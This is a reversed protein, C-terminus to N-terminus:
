SRGRGRWPRRAAHRSAQEQDVVVRGAQADQGVGVVGVREGVPVRLERELVHAHGVRGDETADALGVLQGVGPEDLLADVDGRAARAGHLPQQRQSDLPGRAATWNPWRM